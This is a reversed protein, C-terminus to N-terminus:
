SSTMRCRADQRHESRLLAAPQSRRASRLHREGHEAAVLGGFVTIGGRVRANVLVRVRQVDTTRDSTANTDLTQTLPLKAPALNYATIVEGNLPSVVNVPTYDAQSSRRFRDPPPEPFHPPLIGRGVSLNPRLQHQIPSAPKSIRRGSGSGSGPHEAGAHWLEAAARCRSSVAQPSICADWSGKHSITATSIAGPVRATVAALPSYPTTLSLTRQDVYKSFNAKIATKGTGFLRLGGVAAARRQQIAASARDGRFAARGVFRGAPSHQEPIMADFYEYRVGGTVTMRKLTWSDQVFIGADAIMKADAFDLPSNRIVVSDPVGSRYEQQLDAQSESFSRQRGWAWNGGTTFHHSGTVYSVCIGALQVAGAHDADLDGALGLDHGSRSRDEVRERVVGPQVTGQPRRAPVADHETSTIHRASRSSYGAPQDDVDVEGRGLLLDPQRSDAVGREELFVQPPEYRHGRWKYMRDHHISIKNRPTVQFTLRGTAVKIYQDDIIPVGPILNDM